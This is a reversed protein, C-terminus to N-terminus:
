DEWSRHPHTTAAKWYCGDALDREEVRDGGNRSLDSQCAPIADERRAAAHAIGVVPACGYAGTVHSISRAIVNGGATHREGGERGKGKISRGSMCKRRGSNVGPRHARNSTFLPCSRYRRGVWRCVWRAGDAPRHSPLVPPSFLAERPTYVWAQKNKRCYTRPPPPKWPLVYVPHLWSTPQDAAREAYIM